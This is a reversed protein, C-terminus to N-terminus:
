FAPQLPPLRFGGFAEECAQAVALTRSDGGRPGVIQVGVPLGRASVGVPAATAPLGCASALAVWGLLADYPIKRGDSCRLARRKEPGHAHPFATVPACPMILVDFRGFFGRLTRGFQARAENAELWDWHSATAATVLRAWRARGGFVRAPLRLAELSRRRGPGLDSALLPYLLQLYVDLLEEPPVPFPTLDVRAGERLLDELFREVVERVEADLHLGPAELVAAVRLGQLPAPPARAPIPGPSMVSLLLRLDRASRAMPGAVNLDREAAAGPRPPVQGRHPTLGFTPKHAYIGCFSAPIRLSGGIDSGIELAALGLALAAAAGGSSGGPTRELDWPNRTVGYLSNFTQWDAALVPVNTKGWIVAGESRARGVVAADGAARGLYAQLGSSAPMGDVDFTDKVTMPLGLLLGLAEDREGAERKQDAHRAAARAGPLDEVVVANVKPNLRASRRAVEELLEVASIRRGDLAQLLATADDADLDIVAPRRPARM